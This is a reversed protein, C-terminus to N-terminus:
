GTEPPELVIMGGGVLASRGLPRGQRDLLELREYGLAQARELWRAAQQRRLPAALSGFGDGLTLELLSLAPQPRASNILGNPDQEALLALLPDIRLPTPEPAAPVLAPEPAPSQAQTSTAASTTASASAQDQDPDPSREQTPAAAPSPAPAPTPQRYAGVVPTLLLGLLLVLLPPWFWASFRRPWFGPLWVDGEGNCRWLEWLSLRLSAVVARLDRALLLWPNRYPAPLDHREAGPQM